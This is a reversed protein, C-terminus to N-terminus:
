PIEQRHHEDHDATPELLDLLDTQGPLVHAAEASAAAATVAAAAPEPRLAPETIAAYNM